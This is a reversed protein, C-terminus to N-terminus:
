RMRMNCDNVIMKSNEYYLIVINWSIISKCRNYVAKFSTSWLCVYKISDCNFIEPRYLIFILLTSFSSWASSLVLCHQVIMKVIYVDGLNKKWISRKHWVTLSLCKLVTASYCQLMTINYWQWVKVSNCQLM